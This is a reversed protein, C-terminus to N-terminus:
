SAVGEGSIRVEDNEFDFQLTRAWIYTSMTAPMVNDSFTLKKGPDPLTTLIPMNITANDKNMIALINTLAATVNSKTDHYPTIDMEQGWPYSGTVVVENEIAKIFKATTVEDDLFGEKAEYTTWESKIQKVADAAMYSASLYEFEDLTDTGNDAFMDCLYLQDSKIYFYHTFFSCVDSVFDILPMQSTAWRSADPSTARSNSDDYTSIGFQTNAWDMIETLTTDPGTGSMTLTSNTDRTYLSMTGDGNIIIGTDFDKPVGDEYVVFTGQVYASAHIPLTESNDTPFTVDIVFTSGSASEIVHLGSFNNSGSITISTGTSWGHDTTCTVTTKTGASASSFSEITNANTGSDIGGLHYVEYGTVAEDPLRLPEVHTVVGFAKPVPVTDGNYDTVEELLDQAYTPAYLSYSISTENYSDLYINGEFVKIAADETTATYYVSITAYKPPPWESGDIFTDPSLTISGFDMKVFGGYIQATQYSPASFSLVYPNWFHDFAQGDLSLYLTDSEDEDRQYVEGYGYWLVDGEDDSWSVATSARLEVLIAM